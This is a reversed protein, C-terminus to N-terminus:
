ERHVAISGHSVGAVPTFRGENMAAITREIGNELWRTLNPHPAFGQESM